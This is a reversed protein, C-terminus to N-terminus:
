NSAPRFRLRQWPSSPQRIRSTREASVYTDVWSPLSELGMTTGEIKGFITAHQDSSVLSVAEVANACMVLVALWNPLCIPRVITNNAVVASPRILYIEDGGDVEAKRVPHATGSRRRLRPVSHARDVIFSQSLQNVLGQVGLGCIAGRM